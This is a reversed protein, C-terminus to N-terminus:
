LREVMFLEQKSTVGAAELTQAPDTLTLVRRPYRTVLQFQAVGTVTRAFAFLDKITASTTDFRRRGNSSDARVQILCARDSDPAPEDPLDVNMDEQAPDPTADSANALGAGNPGGVQQRTPSANEEADHAGFEVELDTNLCLVANFRSPRLESVELDFKKGRHWSNVVDGITLTARTRVLSQELVLKIDDLSYFGNHIAETTPTLTAGRGKPLRVLSIEVPACPLDFAGWALHGPTKEDDLDMSVDDAELDSAADKTRFTELADQGHKRRAADLLVRAIPEPLGVHGEEQTFEVVTAHTYALYKHDLEDLYATEAGADVDDDSESDSDDDDMDEEPAKLAQMVPSAPFAYKPNALAVRFTWPSSGSSSASDLGDMATLQELVSPPLAIKDGQGHISTAGLQCLLKVGIAQECGHFYQELYKAQKQEASRQAAATLQREKLLKADHKAKASMEVPRRSKRRDNQDRALRRAASDFDM